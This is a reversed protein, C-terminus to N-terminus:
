RAAGKIFAEAFSAGESVRREFDTSGVAFPRNKETAFSHRLLAEIYADQGDFHHYFAGTTVGARASVARPELREFLRDAPEEHLAGLGAELLRQRTQESEDGRRRRAM